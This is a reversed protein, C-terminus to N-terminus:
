RENGFVYRYTGLIPAAALGFPALAKRTFVARAAKEAAAADGAELMAVWEAPGLPPVSAGQARAPATAVKGDNEAAFAGLMGPREIAAPFATDKLWLTLARRKAPDPVFRLSAVAGGSGHTADVRIRATLRHFKTFRSTVRRSWPTLDALRELYRPDALDGVTGCEYIALYKPDGTVAVYRRARRFGPLNVREDIHERNYWEDLDREHAAKVEAFVILMGRGRLAM